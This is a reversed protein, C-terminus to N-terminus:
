ELSLVEPFNSVNELEHIKQFQDLDGFWEIVFDREIHTPKQSIIAHYSSFRWKKFDQVIGHKQPNRHLYIIVQSLYSEKDIEKRKFKRQFLGGHPNYLKNYAKAYGNLLNSFSNLAAEPNTNEKVRILFHFHNPLLCYALTSFHPSCYTQFKQLFNLCNEETRFLLEEGNTRSYVHYFEGPSFSDPM